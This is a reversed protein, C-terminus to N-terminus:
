EPKRDTVRPTPPAKPADAAEEPLPADDDEPSAEPLPESSLLAGVRDNMADVLAMAQNLEEDVADFDDGRLLKVREKKSM